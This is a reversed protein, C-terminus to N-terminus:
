DDARGSVRYSPTGGPVYQGRAGDAWGAGATWIPQGRLYTAVPWGILDNGEDLSYDSSSGWSAPDPRRAQALDVVVFDADSGPLLTGKQPYRGFVQAPSSCLLEVLRPLPVARKVGETLVAPLMTGQSPFGASASWIDTMKKSRPRSNHDSGIVDVVGDIIGEWLADVDSRSRLPPNVKGLSGDFADERTHTLYHPCTEVIVDKFRSRWFRIVDLAKRSSIHPFYVRAGTREAFYMARIAPESETVAPKAAAWDKLTNGGAAQV